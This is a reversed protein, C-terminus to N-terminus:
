CNKQLNCYRPSPSQNPLIKDEQYYFAGEIEEIQQNTIENIKRFYNLLIHKYPFFHFHLNFAFKYPREKPVIIILRLKTVRRLEKISAFINQTHELTHTCTVTDFQNDSFPLDDIDARIFWNKPYSQVMGNNLQFDCAVVQQKKSLCKALYGSGCGVDLVVNGLINAKIKKICGDGLDTENENQLRVSNTKSYIGQIEKKSLDIMHKKFDFFHKAKDKFVLKMPIWMFWKKDRLVPPVCEDLFYKIIREFNRNIKM